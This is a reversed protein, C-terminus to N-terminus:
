GRVDHQEVAVGNQEAIRPAIQDAEQLLMVIDLADTRADHQRAAFALRADEAVKRREPPDGHLTKIKALKERPCRGKFSNVPAITRSRDINDTPNGADTHHHAPEIENSCAPEIWGEKDVALVDIETGAKRLAAAPDDPNVGIRHQM